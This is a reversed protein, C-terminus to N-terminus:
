AHRLHRSHAPEAVQYEITAEFVGSASDTEELLARYVADSASAGFSFVDAVVTFSTPVVNAEAAENVAALVDVVNTDTDTENIATIATQFDEPTSNYDGASTVALKVSAADPTPEDVDAAEEAAAIIVYIADNEALDNIM